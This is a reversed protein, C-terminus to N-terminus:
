DPRATRGRPGGLQRSVGQVGGTPRCLQPPSLERQYLTAGADLHAAPLLHDTTLWTPMTNHFHSTSTYPIALLRNTIPQTSVPITDNVGEAETSLLTMDDM